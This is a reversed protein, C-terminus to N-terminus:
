VVALVVVKTWAQAQLHQAGAEKMLKPHNANRMCKSHTAVSSIQKLSSLVKILM